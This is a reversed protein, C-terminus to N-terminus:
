LCSGTTHDCTFNGAGNCIVVTQTATSLGGPPISYRCGATSGTSASADLFPYRVVVGATTCAVVGGNDTSVPNITNGYITCEVILPMVSRVIQIAATRRARVTVNGTSVLIVGALIGVIAIVILLEILTFGKQIKKKKM